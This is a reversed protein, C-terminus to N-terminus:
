AQEPPKVEAIVRDGLKTFDDTLRAEVQAATQDDVHELESLIAKTATSLVQRTYTNNAVAYAQTRAEIFNKLETMQAPTMEDEQNTTPAPAGPEFAGHTILARVQDGPCDTPEPRVASHPKIATGHPYLARFDAIVARTTAILEPTPDEGTGVVLLIAGYRENVDNDGNAGSQNALGRLMWARGAQDVAVQYAIDSWDRGDMHYDQWGRLASAVSAKSAIHRDGMGPWHLTVGEVRSATLRGPGPRPTRANWASRPLYDVM